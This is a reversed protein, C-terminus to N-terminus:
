RREGESGRGAMELAQPPTVKVAAGGARFGNGPSPGVDGPGGLVALALFIAPNM